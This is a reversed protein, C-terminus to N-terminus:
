GSRSGKPVRIAKERKPEPGDDMSRGSKAGGRTQGSQDGGMSRGKHHHDKKEGKHKGGGGGMNATEANKGANKAAKGGPNKGAFGGGMMRGKQQQNGYKDPGGLSNQSSGSRISRGGQVGGVAGEQNHNHHGHDGHHDNESNRGSNEGAHHHHSGQHNDGGHGHNNNNRGENKIAMKGHSKGVFIRHLRGHHSNRGGVNSVKRTNRKEGKAAKGNNGKVPLVEHRTHGRNGHNTTVGRRKNVKSSRKGSSQVAKKAHSHHQDSHKGGSTFSRGSAVKNGKSKGKGKSKDPKNGQKGHGHPKNVEIVLLTKEGGPSRM